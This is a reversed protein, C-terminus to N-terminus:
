YLAKKSMGSDVYWIADRDTWGSKCLKRCPAGWFQGEQPPLDSGGDLVHNWRGVQSWFWIADRDTWGNKCPESSHCVSPCVMSSLRYCYAVDVYMTSSHLSIVQAMIGGTFAAVLQM